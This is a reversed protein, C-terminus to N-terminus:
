RWGKMHVIGRPIHRGSTEMGERAVIFVPARIETAIIQKIISKRFFIKIAIHKNM